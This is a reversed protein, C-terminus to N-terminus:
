GNVKDEEVPGLGEESAEESDVGRFSKHKKRSTMVTCESEELHLVQFTM